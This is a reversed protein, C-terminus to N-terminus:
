SLRRQAARTWTKGSYIRSIVSRYVGYRAAIATQKEKGKAALIDPIDEETLKAGHGEWDRRTMGLVHVGLLRGGQQCASRRFGEAVFGLKLCYNKAAELGEIVYATVRQIEQRGFAWALCMRGLTRCHPLAKRTLLAHLDLEIWGSEIVLFAGVLHGSVYAGLYNASPHDIPEAPRHDHGVRAIYPDRYLARLAAQDNLPKLALPQM